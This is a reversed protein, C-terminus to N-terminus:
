SSHTRQKVNILCKDIISGEVSHVMFFIATCKHDYSQFIEISKKIIKASNYAPLFTKCM